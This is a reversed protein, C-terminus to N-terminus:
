AGGYRRRLELNVELVNVMKEGVLGGLPATANEQLVKEIKKRTDAENRNANKALAAAVRDLQFLANKLEWRRRREEVPLALVAGDQWVRWTARQHRKKHLYDALPANCNAPLM